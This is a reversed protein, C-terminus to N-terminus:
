PAPEILMTDDGDDIEEPPPIPVGRDRGALLERRVEVGIQSHGRILLLDLLAERQDETIDNRYRQAFALLSQHWLVPLKLDKAEKVQQSDVGVMPMEGGAAQVAKPDAVRFRLFHFVVADIVRYPLAYKKDLLVRIFINTAGGGETSHSIQETAHDCLWLLATASHLVPISVRALVSSIINAERLTCDESEILPFLFGKFYAAPRFISKKLANYLHVNLKKTEFIDRRVRPLMVTELFRECQYPKAAAFIRMAQYCANPTWSEPATMALLDEWYPVTAIVKFPKPVKGSKYRSLLRGVRTYVDFVKAPIEIAGEPIDAPRIGDGGAQMAEHAAIKEMIIDALSKTPAEERPNSDGGSGLFPGTLVPDVDPPMFKNFLDLDGPDAGDKDVDDDEDGWTDGNDQAEDDSDVEPEYRSEFGFATNQPPAKKERSEEQTLEQGIKLIKRSAKTDVWSQDEEAPGDRQKRKKSQRLIGASNIDESLPKHRRQAGRSKSRNRSVSRAM